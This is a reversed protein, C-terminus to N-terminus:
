PSQEGGLLYGLCTMAEYRVRPNESIVGSANMKAVDDLNKKFQKKCAESINTLFQFGMTQEKWDASRIANQVIQGSCALTTKEGLFVSLRQLSDAAVSAPDNKSQLETDEEALWGELDDAM